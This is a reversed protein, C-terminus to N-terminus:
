VADPTGGPLLRDRLGLAARHDLGRLDIRSYETGATYVSLTGLGFRRELPGQSVDIHQVRSRPVSTVARWIVGRRIEIRDEDIRYSTRRYEVPPWAHSLWALGAAAGPSVVTLLLKLWRPVDPVLWLVALGLMLCACVATTMVWGITRDLVIV